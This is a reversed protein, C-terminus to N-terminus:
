VYAIKELKMTSKKIRVKYFWEGTKFSYTKGCLDEKPMFIFYVFKSNKESQMSNLSYVDFLKRGKCTVKVRTKPDSIIVLKLFPMLSFVKDIVSEKKVKFKM